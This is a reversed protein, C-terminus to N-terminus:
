WALCQEPHQHAGRGELLECKHFTERGTHSFADSEGRVCYHILAPQAQLVMFLMIPSPGSPFSVSFFCLVVAKWNKEPYFGSIENIFTLWHPSALPNEGEGLGAQGRQMNSQLGDRQPDTLVAQEYNLLTCKGSLIGNKGKKNCATQYDPQQISSLSAKLDTGHFACNVTDGYLM